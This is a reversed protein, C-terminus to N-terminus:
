GARFFEIIFRGACYLTGQTNFLTNSPPQSREILLLVCLILLCAVSLYLQTPHRYAGHQWIHWPLDSAKGYCCGGFLCGLRGVAEGACLAVAFLDGTPRRIRLYRKAVVVGLWGGVIGGLVSKGATGGLLLQAANAGVLGAVLAIQLITWISSSQFGRRRAMWWFAAAGTLYGLGYCVASLTMM